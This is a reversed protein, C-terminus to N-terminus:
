VDPKKAYTGSGSLNKERATVTENEDHRGKRCGSKKMRRAKAKERQMKQYEKRVLLQERHIKVSSGPAEYLGQDKMTQFFDQLFSFLSLEHIGKLALVALPLLIFIALYMRVKFPFPLLRFIVSGAAGVLIIAQVMSSWTIKGYVYGEKAFNYPIIYQKM